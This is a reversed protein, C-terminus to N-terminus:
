HSALFYERRELRVEFNSNWGAVRPDLSNKGASVSNACSGVAGACALTCCGERRATRPFGAVKRSCKVCIACFLKMQLFAISGLFANWQFNYCSQPFPVLRTTCGIETNPILVDVILMNCCAKFQTLSLSFSPLLFVKCLASMPRGAWAAQGTTSCMVFLIDTSSM